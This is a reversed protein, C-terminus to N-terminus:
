TISDLYWCLQFWIEVDRLDHRCNNITFLGGKGNPEYERELFRTLVETVYRKDYKKDVMSGLGMNVIMGWFWQGTRDGVHPDDMITEECRISLAIMMELVSCAGELDDMIDERDALHENRCAFKWRLSIGDEARNLDRDISFIFETSHLHMLLKKYSIDKSYRKGCVMDYLWKFYRNNVDDRTM